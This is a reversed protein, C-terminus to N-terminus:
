DDNNKKMCIVTTLTNKESVFSVSMQCLSRVFPLKIPTTADTQQYSFPKVPKLCCSLCCVVVHLLTHMRGNARTTIM